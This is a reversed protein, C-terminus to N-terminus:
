SLPLDLDINTAHCGIVPAMHAVCARQEGDIAFAGQTMRNCDLVRNMDDPDFANVEPILLHFVRLPSDTQAESVYYGWRERPDNVESNLPPPSSSVFGAVTEAGVAAAVERHRPKTFQPRSNGLKGEPMIPHLICGAM